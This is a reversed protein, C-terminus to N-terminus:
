NLGDMREINTVRFLDCQVMREPVDDGDTPAGVFISHRTLAAFEPHRVDFAQGDSLHIRFPEFPQKKLADQVEQLRM